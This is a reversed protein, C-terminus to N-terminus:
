PALSGLYGSVAVMDDMTMTAVWPKMLHADAGNRTGDKFWQLQRVTYIPHMGALRPVAAIGKLDAGHCIGCAVRGGGGEVIQKGRALSGPPVYSIFGSTPHRLRALDQNEPVTIIRGAIPEMAGGPEVFRMRGNGLFTRPVMEAETVKNFVQRPLAAFYEAAEAVEQDTADMAIGNMRKGTPDKRSGNKFDIMQQVIYPASLGTLDSSEPHGLGSMLHCAGCAMAGARGKVVIQPPAPHQDPFWDPPNMLDDIQAMTYKRTSGPVSKPAPDEPFPKEVRDPFAWALSVTAPAQQTAVGVSLVYVVAVAVLWVM